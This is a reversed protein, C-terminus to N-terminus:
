RYLAAIEAAYRELVARRKVKMTPTLLGNEQSFPAPATGWHRIREISSLRANM